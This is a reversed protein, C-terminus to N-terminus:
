AGPDAQESLDTNEPRKGYGIQEFQGQHHIPADCPYANVVRPYCAYLVSNFDLV